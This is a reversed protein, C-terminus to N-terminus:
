QSLGINFIKRISNKYTQFTRKTRCNIKDKHTRTPAVLQIFVFFINGYLTICITKPQLCFIVMNSFEQWSSGAQTSIKGPGRRHRTLPFHSFRIIQEKEQYPCFLSVQTTSPLGRHPYPDLIGRSVQTMERMGCFKRIRDRM